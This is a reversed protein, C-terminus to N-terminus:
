NPKYGPQGDLEPFHLEDMARTYCVYRANEEQELDEQRKSRPHPFQDNRLVFVRSFELGKSLHATSLVVPSNDAHGETVKNYEKVDDENGEIDLGKLREGVWKQFDAITKQQGNVHPPQGQPNIGQRADYDNPDYDPDENALSSGGSFNDICAAREIKAM